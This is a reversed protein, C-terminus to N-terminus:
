VRKAYLQYDAVVSSTVTGMSEFELEHRSGTATIIQSFSAIHSADYVGEAAALSYPNNAGDGITGSLLQVRLTSMDGGFGVTGGILYQAGSTLNDFAPQTENLSGIWEGHITHVESSTSSSGGGGNGDQAEATVYYDFEVDNYNLHSANAPSHNSVKFGNEVIISRDSYSRHDDNTGDLARWSFLNDTKDKLLIAHSKFDNKGFIEVRIPTFGLNIIQEGNNETSNGTYTGQQIIANGSSSVGGGLYIAHGNDIISQLTTDGPYRSYSSNDDLYTGSIDNNFRIREGNGGVDYFQLNNSQIYRFQYSVPGLTAAMQIIDPIKSGFNSLNIVEESDGIGGVSGAPLDVYEITQGDDSVKLYQGSGETLTSPTDTLGAFTSSGGNGNSSGGLKELQVYTQSKNGDGYIYRDQSSNMGGVAFFLDGTAQFIHNFTHTANVPDADGGARNNLAAVINDTTFSDQYAYLWMNTGANNYGAVFRAQGGLRYYAGTELGTFHLDNLNVDNDTALNGQLINEQYSSASFTSSGGGGALAYDSQAIEEVTIYVSRYDAPNTQDVTLRNDITKISTDIANFETVQSITHRNGNDQATAFDWAGNLAAVDTRTDDNIYFNGVQRSGNQSESFTFNISCILISDAAKPTIDLEAFKTGVGAVNGITGVDKSVKQLISGSPLIISGGGGGAPLDVYEITQGDDSVKLYQGSGETLTNPTDTLGAFTSSGGGGGLYIARGNDIIKQLSTDGNYMRYYNTNGLFTPNLGSADNDFELYFSNSALGDTWMQYMIKSDNPGNEFDIRHFYAINPSSNVSSIIIQDPIKGDFNSEAQIFSNDGAGGNASVGGGGGAGSIGFVVFDFSADIRVHSDNHRTAIQIENEDTSVVYANVVSTGIPTVLANYERNPIPTDFVIDFNGDQTKTVGSINFDNRLEQIGAYYTGQALINSVGGGGGGAPLDVYEITQGDDSVKLYQGSGETLTNPTDTLGAFTSSGGGGGGAASPSLSIYSRNRDIGWTHSQGAAKAWMGYSAYIVDKTTLYVYSENVRNIFNGGQDYGKNEWDRAILTSTTLDDVNRQRIDLHGYSVNTGFSSSNGDASNVNVCVDIDYYGDSTPRLGYLNNTTDHYIWNEAGTALNGSDPTFNAGGHGVRDTSLFSMKSFASASGGGSNSTGGAYFARGNDILWKLTLTGVEFDGGPTQDIDANAQVLTGDADDTFMLEGDTHGRGCTYYIDWNSNNTPPTSASAPRVAFLDFTAEYGGGGWTVVISDPLTHQFNELNNKLVDLNGRGGTSTGADGGGGNLSFDDGNKIFLLDAGYNGNTQNGDFSSAGVLEWKIIIKKGNAYDTGSSENSNIVAGELVSGNKNHATFQAIPPETFIGDKFTIEFNNGPSLHNISEIFDSTQSVITVVNNSDVEIRAGFINNSSSGGGGGGGLYIARNADIFEKLTPQNTIASPIKSFDVDTNSTDNSESYADWDGNANNKFTINFRESGGINWEYQVM